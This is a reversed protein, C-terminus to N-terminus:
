TMILNLIECENLVVIIYCSNPTFNYMNLSSCNYSCCTCNKYFIDRFSCYMTCYYMIYVPNGYTQDGKNLGWRFAHELASHHQRQRINLHCEIDLLIYQTIYLVYYLLIILIFPSAPRTAKDAAMSTYFALARHDVIVM